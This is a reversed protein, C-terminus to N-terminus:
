CGCQESIGGISDDPDIICKLIVKSELMYEYGKQVFNNFICTAFGIPSTEM